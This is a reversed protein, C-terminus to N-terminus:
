RLYSPLQELIFFNLHLGGVKFRAVYDLAFSNLTAVLCAVNEHSAKPLLLPLNNGVGSYPIVAAVVTRASARSDTVDRWALFWTRNWYPSTQTQVAYDAVWYCPTTTYTPDYLM